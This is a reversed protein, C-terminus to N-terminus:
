GADQTVQMDQGTISYDQCNGSGLITGVIEDAVCVRITNGENPPISFTVGPNPSNTAVSASQDFGNSTLVRVNVSNVGFRHSSIFVTMHYSPQQASAMQMATAVVVIPFSIAVLLTKVLLNSNM